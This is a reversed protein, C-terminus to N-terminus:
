SVNEMKCAQIEIEFFIISVKVANVLLDTDFYPTCCCTILFFGHANKVIGVLREAVRERGPRVNVVSEIL